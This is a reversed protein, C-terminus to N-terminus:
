ECRAKKALLAEIQAMQKTFLDEMHNAQSNVQSHLQTFQTDVRQEFHSQNASLAQIQQELVSLRAEHQTHRNDNVGSSAESMMSDVEMDAVSPLKARLAQEVREEIRAEVSKLSTVVDDARPGQVALSQIGTQWPDQKLWPDIGSKDQTPKSCMEMTASNGVVVAPVEPKAEKQGLKTIVVDGNKTSFVNAPPDVSSQVVWLTGLEGSVAKTPNLPRAQWKWSQLLKAISARDMGFPLPGVHYSQRAGIALVISGPKIAATVEKAKEALVRVGLRSGMRTVGIVDHNIKQLHLLEPLTAKPLWITHYETVASRGDLSRPEMFVGSNGSFALMGIECSKAFRLNVLFIDAQSAAVQKFAMNVWQRRWVDFLPEQIDNSPDPHWGQCSCDKQQCVRLQPILELVAKVPRAVVDDWSDPILDRYISVKVCAAPVGQPAEVQEKRNHVVACQGLQVLVANVIMPEGNAQCRVVTRIQQWELSTQEMEDGQNLLLIGLAAQAIIVGAKLFQAVEDATAVAVGSAMPNLQAPSIQSLADGTASVFVDPELVVKHPDIQAPRIPQKLPRPRKVARSKAEARLKVVEELETPLVWAFVPRAQNGLAKLGRWPSGSLLASQVPGLGLAQVALGIRSDVQDAPVGHQQLLDVLRSRAHPDLGNGWVWPRPTQLILALHEDFKSRGIEHLIAVEFACTPLMHGRIVSDLFRVACVGCMEHAAFDRHTFHVMWTRSGVLKSVADHLKSLKAMSSNNVDWSRAVLTEKTWTWVLPIWHSDVLVATVIRDPVMGLQTFWEHLLFHKPSTIMASAMLPDMLVTKTGPVHKLMENVHWLIEDDAWLKGQHQLLIRRVESSVVQKRLAVLSRCTSVVPMSLSLLVAAPMNLLPDPVESACTLSEGPTMNVEVNVPTGHIHECSDESESSGIMMPLTLTAETDDESVEMMYPDEDVAHLADVLPMVSRFHVKRGGVCDDMGLTVRCACDIVEVVGECPELRREAVVLERVTTETSQLRVVLEVNGQADCIWVKQSSHDDSPILSPSPQELEVRDAICLQLSPSVEFWKKQFGLMSARFEDLQSHLDLRVEGFVMKQLHILVCGGIWLSQLPAAQQGLGALSLRLCGPWASPIPCGTVLAVEVPHPHRYGVTMGENLIPFVIGYVGRQILTDDSFGEQRCGCKCGVLQSGWSHLATPCKCNLTPIMDHPNAFRVLRELETGEIRIQQLDEDPFQLPHPIVHKMLSPYSLQPFKQLWIQGLSQVGLVAWWRDRKSCWVDGLDLTQESMVYGCQRCFQTLESKVYQNNSAQTVCELIILPIRLFFATELTGRLSIARSDLAGMQRGGGSFPQCSFGSFMSKSCPAKDHIEAIVSKQGVEGLVTQAQPHLQAFGDLMAKNHDCGLIPHFGVHQFGYTAWGMGCCLEIMSTLDQMEIHKHHMVKTEFGVSLQQIGKNGDYTAGFITMSPGISTMDVSGVVRVRTKCPFALGLITHEDYCLIDVVVDVLQHEQLEKWNIMWPRLDGGDGWLESAM